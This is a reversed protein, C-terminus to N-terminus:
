VLRTKEPLKYTAQASFTKELNKFNIGPPLLLVVYTNWPLNLPIFQLHANMHKAPVDHEEWQFKQLQEPASNNLPPNLYGLTVALNSNLNSLKFLM